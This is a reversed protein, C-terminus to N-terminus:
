ITTLNEYRYNVTVTGDEPNTSTKPLNGHEWNPGCLELVRANQAEAGDETKQINTGVYATRGNACLIVSVFGGKRSWVTTKMAM